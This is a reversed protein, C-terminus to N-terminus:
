GAKAKYQEAEEMSAVGGRDRSWTVPDELFKRVEKLAPESFYPRERCVELVDWWTALHLLNLNINALKEQVGPFVGYFFVVFTHDVVVGADRMAQAFRIKSGGDTTLDEVLLTKKGVPVDGEIQANKGFGKPKKRVYSMPANMRDAIWAAYPIGATEGGTVAEISEFGIHRNIKEVALDCIRTRARPFSIIKRCDIYVPSKWGSTYTYPEDPQFNVAKIELLIRATTLAADRDWDSLHMATM